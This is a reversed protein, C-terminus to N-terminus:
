VTNLLWRFSITKTRPLQYGLQMLTSLIDISARKWVNTRGISALVSYHKQTKKWHWTATKDLERLLSLQSSHEQDEAERAYLLAVNVLSSVPGFRDGTQTVMVVKLQIIYSQLLATKPSFKSNETRKLLMNWIDPRELFDRVTRHLYQITSDLPDAQDDFVELLGGCRSKLRCKAEECRLSIKAASWPGMETDLAVTDDEEDAFALTVLYVEATDGYTRERM